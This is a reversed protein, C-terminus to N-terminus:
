AAEQLGAAKMQAQVFEQLQADNDAAVRARIEPPAKALEVCGAVLGVSTVAVGVVWSWSGEGSLKEVYGRVTANQQAAANWAAAMQPLQSHLVAAYPRTDPLKVPGLRGGRISSAGLWASMGLGMLDGTYDPKDDPKGASPAVAAVRPKDAEKPRGPGAPKLRPTGDSKVGYPAIPSGDEARGHPAAPDREPKRPPAPIEPPPATGADKALAAEFAGTVTDEMVATM